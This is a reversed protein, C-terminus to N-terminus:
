DSVRAIWNPRSPWPPKQWCTAITEEREAARVNKWREEPVVLKRNLRGAEELLSRAIRWNRKGLEAAEELGVDFTAQELVAFGQSLNAAERFAGVARVFEAGEVAQRTEEHLSYVRAFREAQKRQKAALRLLQNDAPSKELADRLYAAATEYDGRDLAAGIQAVKADGVLNQATNENTGETLEFDSHQM